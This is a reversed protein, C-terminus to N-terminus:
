PGVERKARSVTADGPEDAPVGSAPYQGADPGAEATVEDADGLLESFLARYHIM